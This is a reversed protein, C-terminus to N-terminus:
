ASKDLTARKFCPAHRVRSLLDSSIDYTESPPYSTPVTSLSRPESLVISSCSESIAASVVALDLDLTDLAESSIPDISAGLHRPSTLALPTNSWVTHEIHRDQRICEVTSALRRDLGETDNVPGSDRSREFYEELINFVDEQSLTHGKLSKSAIESGEVLVHVDSTPLVSPESITPKSTASPNMPSESPSESSSETPTKSTSSNTAPEKSPENSPLINTSREDALKRRKAPWGQINEYNREKPRLRSSRRLLKFEVHM